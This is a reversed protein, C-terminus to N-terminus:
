LGSLLLAVSEDLLAIEPGLAVESPRRSQGESLAALSAYGRLRLITVSQDIVSGIQRIKLIRINTSALSLRQLPV